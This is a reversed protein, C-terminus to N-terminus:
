KRLTEAYRYCQGEDGLFVLRAIVDGNMFARIICKQEHGDADVTIQRDWVYVKQGALSREDPAGLKAIAASLPQGKLSILEESIQQYACSGLAM